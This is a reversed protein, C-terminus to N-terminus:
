VTHRRRVMGALGILGSGFLWAAAPVPAPVLAPVQISTLARGATTIKDFGTDPGIAELMNLYVMEDTACGGTLMIISGSCAINTTNFGWIMGDESANWDGQLDATVKFKEGAIKGSIKVAGSAGGEDVKAKFDYKMKEIFYDTGSDVVLRNDMSGKYGKAEISFNDNKGVNKDDYQISVVNDFYHYSGNVAGPLACGNLPGAGNDPCSSYAFCGTSALSLVAFVFAPVLKSSNLIKSMKSTRLISQNFFYKV